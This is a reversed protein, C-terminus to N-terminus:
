GIGQRSPVRCLFSCGGVEQSYRGSKSQDEFGRQIRKYSIAEDLLGKEFLVLGLRLHAEWNEPSIRLAEKCEEMAKELVEPSCSFLHRSVREFGKPTKRWFSDFAEM